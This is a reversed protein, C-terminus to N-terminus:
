GGEAQRAALAGLWGQAEPSEIPVIQGRVGEALPSALFLILRAPVEPKLLRGQQWADHYYQRMGGGIQEPPAERIETQMATDTMGPYVANVAVGTGELEAALRRALHDVGAKSVACASLRPFARSAILSSLLIIRGQNRRLMGGLVAEAMNFSGLLNVDLCRRWAAADVEGFPGIPGIVGAAQVLIDVAGFAAEAAQVATGAAQRDAVDLPVSLARGGLAEVDAQASALEAATRAALVVGAGAGALALAVARGIGRGAGTVLATRGQM